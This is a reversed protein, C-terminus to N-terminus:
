CKKDVINTLRGEAEAYKELARTNPSIKEMELILAKLSERHKDAEHEADEQTVARRRNDPVSSLDVQVAINEGTAKSIDTNGDHELFAETIDLRSSSNQHGDSTRRRKSPGDPVSARRSQAAKAADTHHLPLVIEELRTKQFLAHRKARSQDIIAEKADVKKQHGGLTSRESDLLKRLEKLETDFAKVDASQQESATQLEELDGNLQATQERYEEHKDASDTLTKAYDEM